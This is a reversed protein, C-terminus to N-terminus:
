CWLLGEMDRVLLRIKSEKSNAQENLRQENNGKALENSKAANINIDSGTRGSMREESKRSSRSWTAHIKIAYKEVREHTFIHLNAFEYCIESHCM